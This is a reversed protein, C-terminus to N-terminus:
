HQYRSSWEELKCGLDVDSDGGGGDDNLQIYLAGVGFIMASLDLRLYSVTPLFYFSLFLAAGWFSGFIFLLADYV